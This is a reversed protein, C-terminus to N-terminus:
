APHAGAYSASRSVEVRQIHRRPNRRVAERIQQVIAVMLQRQGVRAQRLELQAKDIQVRRARPGLTIEMQLGAAWQYGDATRFIPFRM